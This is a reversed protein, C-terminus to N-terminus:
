RCMEMDGPVAKQEWGGKAAVKLTGFCLVSLHLLARGWACAKEWGDDGGGCKHIHDWIGNGM